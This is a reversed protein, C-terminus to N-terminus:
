KFYARLNEKSLDTMLKYIGKFNILYYVLKSIKQKKENSEKLEIPQIQEKHKECITDIVVGYKGV